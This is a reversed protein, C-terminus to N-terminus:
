EPQKLSPLPVYKHLCIGLHLSHFSFIIDNCSDQFSVRLELGCTSVIALRKILLSVLTRVFLWEQPEARFVDHLRYGFPSSSACMHLPSSVREKRTNYIEPTEWNFATMKLSLAAADAPLFNTERKGPRPYAAPYLTLERKVDEEKECALAFGFVSLWPFLDELPYVLVAALGHGAVEQAGVIALVELVGEALLGALGDHM